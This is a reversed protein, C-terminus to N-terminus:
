NKQLAQASHRNNTKNPLIAHTAFVIYRYDDLQEKLKNVITERAASEHLILAKNLPAKLFNAIETVETEPLHRFCGNVLKQYALTRLGIFNNIDDGSITVDGEIETCGPYSTQFNDIEAQTTFIIGEPLCPQSSLHYTFLLFIFTFPFILLIFYSRKM